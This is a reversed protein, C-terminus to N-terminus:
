RDYRKGAIHVSLPADFDHDLRPGAIRISLRALRMACWCLARSVLFRWNM